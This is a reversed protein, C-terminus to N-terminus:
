FSGSSIRTAIEGREKCQKLTAVIAEMCALQHDAFSASMKGEAIRRPYVGQRMKLEREAAAVQDALTVERPSNPFLDSM